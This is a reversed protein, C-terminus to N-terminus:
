LGWDKITAPSFVIAIPTNGPTQDVVSELNNPDRFIRKFEETPMTGRIEVGGRLSFSVGSVGEPLKRSGELQSLAERLMQHVQQYSLGKSHRFRTAHETISEEIPFIVLAPKTGSLLKMIEPDVPQDQVSSSVVPSTFDEKM